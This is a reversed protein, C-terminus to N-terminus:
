DRIDQIFKEVESRHRDIEAIIRWLKMRVLSNDPTNYKRVKQCMATTTINKRLKMVAEGAEPTDMLLTPLKNEMYRGSDVNEYM